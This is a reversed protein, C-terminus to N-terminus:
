VFSLQDSFSVPPFMGWNLWLYLIDQWLELYNLSFDAHCSSWMGLSFSNLFIDYNPFIFDRGTQALEQDGQSSVWLVTGPDGFYDGLSRFIVPSHFVVDTGFLNHCAQSLLLLSVPARCTWCGWNWESRHQNGKTEFVVSQGMTRLPYQGLKQWRWCSCVWSLWFRRHCFAKNSVEWSSSGSGPFHRQKYLRCHSTEAGSTSHCSKIRQDGMVGNSRGLIPLSWANTWKASACLAQKSTLRLPLWCWRIIAIAWPMARWLLLCCNWVRYCVWSRLFGPDWSLLLKTVGPDWPGLPLQVAFSGQCVWFRLNVPAQFWLNVSFALSQPAM